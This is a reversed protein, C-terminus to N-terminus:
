VIIEGDPFGKKSYEAL